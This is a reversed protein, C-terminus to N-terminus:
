PLESEFLGVYLLQLKNFNPGTAVYTECATQDIIDLLEALEPADTALQTKLDNVETVVDALASISSNGSLSINNLIDIINTVLMLGECLKRKTAPLNSADTPLNPHPVRSGSTCANAAPLSNAATDADGTYAIFCKSPSSGQEDTSAAGAGKKGATNVNGYFNLFKGLQVINLFLAQMGIDGAKRPGFFSNRAVQGATATSGLLINIATKLDSYSPATARNIYSNSLIALSTFFGIGSGSGDISPIDTTIFNVENFGARCAYASALVQLYVPDSNRGVKELLDIAKQCQDVSLYTQAVDVAEQIEEATKKGCSLSLLFIFLISLLRV